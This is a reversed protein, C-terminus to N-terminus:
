TQTTIKKKRGLHTLIRMAQNEYMKMSEKRNDMNVIINTLDDNENILRHFENRVREGEEEERDNFRSKNTKKATEKKPIQPEAINPAKEAEKKM